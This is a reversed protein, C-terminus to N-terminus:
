GANVRALKDVVNQKKKPLPQNRVEMDADAAMQDHDAAASTGSPEEAAGADGAPASSSAQHEEAECQKMHFSFMGLRELADSTDAFTPAWGLRRIARSKDKEGFGFVLKACEAEIEISEDPEIAFDEGDYRDAFPQGSNNKVWITQARKM